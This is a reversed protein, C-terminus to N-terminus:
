GLCLLQHNQLWVLENIVVDGLRYKVTETPLTSTPPATQEQQGISETQCSSSCGDSSVLNSDDCQEGTELIGNGCQVQGQGQDAPPQASTNQAKPTGGVLASTQWSGDDKREMTAKTANDGASWGASADIKDILNGAGDRLELIEGSNSLAGTYIQDATVGSVTDDSTREFLFYGGATISGSLSINPQGDVATLTWGTLDVATASKNYLEIWEDNASNQTGMWALENIVVDGQSAAKVVNPHLMHLMPLCFFGAVSLLLIIFFSKKKKFKGGQILM